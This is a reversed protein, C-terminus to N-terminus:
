TRSRPDLAAKLLEALLSVGILLTVFVTTAVVVVALQREKAADVYLLGFYTVNFLKEAVFSGALLATALPPLADLLTPLANPLAHRFIAQRRSRGKMLATVLYPKNAEARLADTLLVGLFIGPGLSMVLAAWPEFASKDDDYSVGTGMAVLLAFLFTPTGYVVTPILELAQELPGRAYLTRLLAFGGGLLLALLLALGGIRLSGALARSLDSINYSRPGTGLREGAVLRKWPTLFGLPQGIGLDREQQQALFAFSEKQEGESKVPLAAVFQYVLFATLPVLALDRLVRLLLGKM